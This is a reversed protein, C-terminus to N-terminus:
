QLGWNGKGWCHKATNVRDSGWRESRRIVCLDLTHKQSTFTTSLHNACCNRTQHTWTSDLYANSIWGDKTKQGPTYHGKAQPNPLHHRELNAVKPAHLCYDVVPRVILRGQSTTRDWEFQNIRSFMSTNPFSNFMIWKLHKKKREIMHTESERMLTKSPSSEPIIGKWSGQVASVPKGRKWLKDEEKWTLVYPADGCSSTRELNSLM